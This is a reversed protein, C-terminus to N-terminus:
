IAGVTSSVWLIEILSGQKEETCLLPLFVMLVSLVSSLDLSEASTLGTALLGQGLLNLPHTLFMRFPRIFRHQQMGDLFFGGRPCLLTTGWFHLVHFSDLSCADLVAWFIVLPHRISCRQLGLISTSGRTSVSRCFPASHSSDGELDATSPHFCIFLHWTALSCRLPM